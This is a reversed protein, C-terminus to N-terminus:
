SMGKGSARFIACFTAPTLRIIGLKKPFAGSLQLFPATGASVNLALLLSITSWKSGVTKSGYNWSSLTLDNPPM